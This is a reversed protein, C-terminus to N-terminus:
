GEAWWNAPVPNEPTINRFVGISVKLPVRSWVHVAVTEGATQAEVANLLTRLGSEITTADAGLNRVQTATRNLLVTGDSAVIRVGSNVNVERINKTM